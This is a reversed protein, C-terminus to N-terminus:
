LGMATMASQYDSWLADVKSQYESTFDHQAPTYGLANAISEATVAGATRDAYTTARDAEAKAKTVEAQADTVSEAAESAKASATQAYEIIETRIGNGDFATKWVNTDTPLVGITAKVQIHWYLNGNYHVVDNLEYSTSANYDGKYLPAIRGLDFTAM